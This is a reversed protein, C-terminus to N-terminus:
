SEAKYTVHCVIDSKESFQADRFTFANGGPFIFQQAMPPAVQQISNTLISEICQNISINNMYGPLQAPASQDTTSSQEPLHQFSLGGQDNVDINFVDWYGINVPETFYTASNAAVYQTANFIVQQFIILSQGIISVDLHVLLYTSFTDAPNAMGNVSVKNEYNYFLLIDKSGTEPSYPQFVDPPLPAQLTDFGVTWTDDKSDWVKVYTKYCNHHVYGNLQNQLYKAFADRNISIAGDYKNVDANSDMNPNHSIGNDELWNWTFQAAPNLPDGNSAFLYNLTALDQQDQTPNAIANGNSDVFSGVYWDMASPVLSASNPTTLAYYIADTQSTYTSFYANAFQQMLPIFVSCGIDLGTLTSTPEIVASDLDFILQQVNVDTGGMTDVAEKVIVPLNNNDLVNQLNINAYINFEKATTQKIDVWSKNDPNWFAVQLQFCLLYYRVSNSGPNLTLYNTGLYDQPNGITFSFAFCFESESLTKKDALTLTSSLPDIKSTYDAKLDDVDIVQPNGSSDKIFYFSVSTFKNTDFYYTEIANNLAKQTVAVVTDYGYKPQTLNSQSISM